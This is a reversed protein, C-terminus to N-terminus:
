STACTHGNAAGGTHSASADIGSSVDAGYPGVHCAGRAHCPVGAARHPQRSQKQLRRRAAPRRSLSLGVPDRTPRARRTYPGIADHM